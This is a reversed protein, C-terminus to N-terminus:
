LKTIKRTVRQTGKIVSILYNGRTLSSLNLNGDLLNTETMVIKGLLNYVIVTASEAGEITLYNVTPNPYVNIELSAEISLVSTGTGVKVVWDQSETGNKVTYTVNESYDNITTGSVQAVEGIFVEAGEEITFSPVLSTFDTEDGMWVQITHDEVNITSSVQSTITFSTFDTSTGSVEFTGAFAGFAIFIAVIITITKKM